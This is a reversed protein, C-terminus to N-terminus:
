GVEMWGRLNGPGVQPAKWSIDFLAAYTTDGGTFFGEVHVDSEGGMSMHRM